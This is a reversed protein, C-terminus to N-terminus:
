SLGLIRDLGEASSLVAATEAATLL